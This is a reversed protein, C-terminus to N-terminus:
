LGLREINVYYEIIDFLKDYIEDFALDKGGAFKDWHRLQAILQGICEAMSHAQYHEELENPDFEDALTDFEFKVKM